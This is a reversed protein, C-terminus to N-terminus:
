APINIFRLERVLLILDPNKISPNKHLLHHVSTHHHHAIKWLTDGSKVTHFMKHLILVGKERKNWIIYPCFKSTGTVRPNILKTLVLGSLIETNQLVATGLLSIPGFLLVSIWININFITFSQPFYWYSLDLM